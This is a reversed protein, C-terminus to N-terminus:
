HINEDPSPGEEVIEAIEVIEPAESAVRLIQEIELLVEADSVSDPEAIELRDSAIRWPKGSVRSRITM